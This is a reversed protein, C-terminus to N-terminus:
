AAALYAPGFRVLLQHSSWPYEAVAADPAHHQELLQLM